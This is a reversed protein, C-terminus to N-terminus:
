TNNQLLHAAKEALAHITFFPGTKSTLNAPFISADVIRLNKIGHVQFKNNVVSTQANRGMSCTGMFHPTPRLNNRVFKYLDTENIGPSIEILKGYSKRFTETMLIRRVYRISSVITELDNRNTLYDLQIRPPVLPNANYLSISGITSTPSANVTFVSLTNTQNNMKFILFANSNTHNTSHQTNILAVPITEHFSINETKYIMNIGGNDNLNKGVHKLSHKIPIDHKSLIEPDGIGSLMLLHPSYFAGASLIYENRANAMFLGNKSVFLVNQIQKTIEDVDLKIVTAGTIVKLNPYKALAPRLYADASWSRIGNSFSTAEFSFGYDIENSFEDTFPENLEKAINKWHNAIEDNYMHTIKLPGRTGHHKRILEPRNSTFNEAMQYYQAMQNHDYSSDNTADVFYNWDNSTMRQIGGSNISSGGLTNWVHIDLTRNNLNFSPEAPLYHKLHFLEFMKSFSAKERLIPNLTENMGSSLLLTEYGYEALRAAVICGATGGGIVIFDVQINNSKSTKQNIESSSTKNLLRDLGIFLVILYNLHYREIM